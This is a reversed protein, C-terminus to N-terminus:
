ISSLRQPQSALHLFGCLGLWRNVLFLPKLEEALLFRPRGVALEGVLSGWARTLVVSVAPVPNLM